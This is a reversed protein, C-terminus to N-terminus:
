RRRRRHRFLRMLFDFQLLLGESIVIGRGILGGGFLCCGFGFGRLQELWLMLLVVRRFGLRGFQEFGFAAGFGAAGLRRPARCAFRAAFSISHKSRPIMRPLLLHCAVVSQSVSQSRPNNKPHNTRHSPLFPLPPGDRISHVNCLM